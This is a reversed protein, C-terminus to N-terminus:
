ILVETYNKFKQLAGGMVDEEDDRIRSGVGFAYYIECADCYHFEVGEICVYCAERMLCVPCPAIEACVRPEGNPMVNTKGANINQHAIKNLEKARRRNKFYSLM